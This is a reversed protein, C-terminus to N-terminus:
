KGTLDDLRFKLAIAMHNLTSAYFALEGTPLDDMNDSTAVADLLDLATYLEKFHSNRLEKKPTPKLARFEFSGTKKKSVTKKKSKTQTKAM